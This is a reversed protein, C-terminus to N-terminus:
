LGQCNRIYCGANSCVGAKHDSGCAPESGLSSSNFFQICFKQPYVKKMTIAQFVLFSFSIMLSHKRHQFETAQIVKQKTQQCSSHMNRYLCRTSITLFLFIFPSAV